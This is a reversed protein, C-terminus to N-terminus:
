ASPCEILGFPPPKLQNLLPSKLEALKADVLELFAESSLDKGAELLRDLDYYDRIAERTCAARLKEARAEDEDLAWCRAKSYDGVEPDDLLQRLQVERADRLVPRLSAEVLIEQPGFDSEYPLKWIIASGKDRAEGGPFRLTLGVVPALKKLADRLFHLRTINGGKGFKSKTGPVVLDVDESMRFFGLDVKSLLTGGKLLAKAGVEEHLAWLLRTLFFDKEVLYAQVNQEEGTERCADALVARSPLPPLAASM